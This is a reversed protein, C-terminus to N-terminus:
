EHRPTRPVKASGQQQQQQQTYRAAPTCQAARMTQRVPTMRTQTNTEKENENKARKETREGDGRGRM